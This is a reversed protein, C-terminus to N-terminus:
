HKLNSVNEYPILIQKNMISLGLTKDKTSLQESYSVYDILLLSISHMLQYSYLTNKYVMLEVCLYSRLPEVKCRAGSNMLFM